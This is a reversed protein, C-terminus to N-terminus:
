YIRPTLIEPKELDKKKIVINVIHQLRRIIIFNIYIAVYVSMYM